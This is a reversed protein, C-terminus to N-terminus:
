CLYQLSSKCDLWDKKMCGTIGILVLLTNLGPKVVLAKKCMLLPLVCELLYAVWKDGRRVIFKGSCAIFSALSEM